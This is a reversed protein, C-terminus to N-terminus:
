VCIDFWETTCRLRICNYRLSVPIFSSVLLIISPILCSIKYSIIKRLNFIEFYIHLYTVLSIIFQLRSIRLSWWWPLLSYCASHKNFNARLLLVQLSSPFSAPGPLSTALSCHQEFGRGWFIEPLQLAGMLATGQPQAKVDEEPLPAHDGPSSRKRKLVPCSLSQQFRSLAWLHCDCHCHQHHEHQSHRKPRSILAPPLFLQYSGRAPGALLPWHSRAWRTVEAAQRSTRNAPCCGCIGWATLSLWLCLSRWQPSGRVSCLYANVWKVWMKSTPVIIRVMDWIQFSFCWSALFSTRLWLASSPNSYKLVWFTPASLQKPCLM